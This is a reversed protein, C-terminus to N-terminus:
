PGEELCSDGRVRLWDDSETKRDDESQVNSRIKTGDASLVGGANVACCVPSLAKLRVLINHASHLEVQATFGYTEIAGGQAPVGRAAKLVGPAVVDDSWAHLEGGVGEVIHMCTNMLGAHKWTGVFPSKGTGTEPRPRRLTVTEDLSGRHFRGSWTGAEPDFRLDLNIAPGSLGSDDIKLHNGSWTMGPSNSDFWNGEGDARAAGMQEFVEVAAQDCIQVLANSGRAPRRARTTLVIQVGFIRHHVDAEWLGSLREPHRIASGKLWGDAAARREVAFAPSLVVFFLFCFILNRKTLTEGRGM